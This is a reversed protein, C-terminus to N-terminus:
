EVEGTKTPIRLIARTWCGYSSEYRLGYGDGYFLRIRENVNYIGYGAKSDTEGRELTENMKELKEPRIGTGDDWVSLELVEEQPGAQREGYIRIKGAGQKEKIGHYISNEALPQLVLKIMRIDLWSEDIEIEYSLRSHYRISQIELYSAVHELEEGLTIVEAGKSLSIRFFKGLSNSLISIEEAGQDAAQWTIANLTNYLFHPNIQAQLAKLEAKRKQKQVESVYDRERKLEEITEEQKQVLSEIEGIMYNFIKALSGIEDKYPYFFRVSLDGKEVCSMRRELRRLSNTLQHSLLLIAAVAALFVIGMIEYIVNRLNKLSGLLSQRSKLGYIQWGNEKLSEYTVLYTDGDHRYDSTIVNSGAAKTESLKMLEGPDIDASGILLNGGEDLILIKDFFEYKGKLLRELETKKLQIVLYEMGVYNQVSFQWVIPIVQDKDQFIEDTWVPFWRISKGPNEEYSKGFASEKFDFEWNRMRVFNDFSGKDTYIYTSHILSEGTEFDKMFDPVTGLAKVLNIDNPNNLYDSLTVMFTYNTLMGKARQNIVGLRLGLTDAIQVLVDEAGVRFNEEIDNSTYRYYSLGSIATAFFFMIGFLWIIKSRFRLNNVIKKMSKERGGAKM